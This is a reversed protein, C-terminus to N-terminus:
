LHMGIGVKCYNEAMRYNKWEKLSSKKCTYRGQCYSVNCTFRTVTSIYSVANFMDPFAAASLEASKNNNNKINKNVIIHNHKTLANGTWKYEQVHQYYYPAYLWFQTFSWSRIFVMAAFVSKSL